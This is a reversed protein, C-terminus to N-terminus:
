TNKIVFVHAYRQKTKGKTELFLLVLTKEEKEARLSYEKIRISDTSFFNREKFIKFIYLSLAKEKAEILTTVSSVLM